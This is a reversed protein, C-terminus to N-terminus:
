DPSARSPVAIIRKDTILGVLQRAQNELNYKGRVYTVIKPDTFKQYTSRELIMKMKEKLDFANGREFLLGLKGGELVETMGEFNTAIVPVGMGLAEIMVLGLSETLSPCIFCYSEALLKFIEQNPVRELFDVKGDLGLGKALALNNPIEEPFMVLKLKLKTRSAQDLYEDGLLLAFAEILLWTGKPWSRDGGVSLFTIENFDGPNLRRPPIEWNPALYIVSVKKNCGKLDNQMLDAATTKSNAVLISYKSQVIKRFRTSLYDKEWSPLTLLRQSFPLWSNTTHFSLSFTKEQDILYEAAAMFFPRLSRSATIIIVKFSDLLELLKGYSGVPLHHNNLKREAFESPYALFAESGMKKLTEILNQTNIELGGLKTPDYDQLFLIRQNM